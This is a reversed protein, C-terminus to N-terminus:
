DEYSLNDGQCLVSISHVYSAWSVACFIFSKQATPRGRIAKDVIMKPGTDLPNLYFAVM